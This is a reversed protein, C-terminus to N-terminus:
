RTPVPTLLRRQFFPFDYKMAVKAMMKLPKDTSSTIIGKVGYNEIITCTKEFDKGDVVFFLDAFDKGVSNKDPDIVVSRIKLTKCLKIISVQLQGGGFILLTSDYNM